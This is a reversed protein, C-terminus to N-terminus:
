TGADDVGEGIFILIAIIIIGSVEKYKRLRSEHEREYDELQDISIFVITNSQQLNKSNALDVPPM